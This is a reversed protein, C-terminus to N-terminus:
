HPLWLHSKHTKLEAIALEFTDCPETELLHADGADTSSWYYSLKGVTLFGKWAQSEINFTVFMKPPDWTKQM